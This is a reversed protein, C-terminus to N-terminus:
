VLLRLFIRTEYICPALGAEGEAIGPCARLFHGSAISHPRDNIKGGAKISDTLGM